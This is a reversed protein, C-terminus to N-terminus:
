LLEELNNSLKNNVNLDKSLNRVEDYIYDLIKIFRKSNRSM